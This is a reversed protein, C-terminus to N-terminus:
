RSCRLYALPNPPNDAPKYDDVVIRSEHFAPGYPECNTASMSFAEVYDPVCDIDRYFRRRWAVHEGFSEVAMTSSEAVCYWLGRIGFDSYFVAFHIM